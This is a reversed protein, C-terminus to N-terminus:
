RRELQLLADVLAGLHHDADVAVGLAVVALRRDQVDVRRELALLDAAQLGDARATVPGRHLAGEGLQAPARVGLRVQHRRQDLAGARMGGLALHHLRELLDPAGVGLRRHESPAPGSPPLGGTAKRRPKAGRMGSDNSGIASARRWHSAWQPASGTGDILATVDIM